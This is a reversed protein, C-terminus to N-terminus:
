TLKMYKTSLKLFWQFSCIWKNLLLFTRLKRMKKSLAEWTLIPPRQHSSVTKFWWMTKVSCTSSTPGNLFSIQLRMSNAGYLKKLNRLFIKISTSWFNKMMEPSLPPLQTMLFSSIELTPQLQPSEWSVILWTKARVWKSM